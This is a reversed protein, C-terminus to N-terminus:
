TDDNTPMQYLTDGSSREVLQGEHLIFVRDTPSILVEKQTFSVYIIDTRNLADHIQANIGKDLYSTAEDLILINPRKYLARALLLRQKQSGSLNTGIDGVMTQLGKPMATIEEYLGVSRLSETVRQQNLNHDFFAVNELIPAAFLQDEQTVTGIHARYQVLNIQRLNVGEVTIDGIDPILLGLMLKILTTKVKESLGLIVVSDGSKIDLNIGSVIWPQDDTHRYWVDEFAINFSTEIDSHNEGADINHHNVEIVIDEQPPKLLQQKGSSRLLLEGEHLTFVKDTQSLLEERHTISIHTRGANRLAAHVHAQNSKDLHSTAEDLILIEPNKYLARAVLLRQKQGGSLTTGMDGVLTQMGMPMTTVEELLGASRLCDVVREQELEPDFFAVNELISGAFLQDEQMVTGIHSRYQALNIQRLSIGDVLIDGKDPTLLGLMLKILTTKGGGSLGIIVISDGPQIELNIGSLVWPEGDSYRFWVNEFVLSLGTESPILSVGEETSDREHLVIDSLRETQISLLKFSVMKDVFASTKSIFQEKYGLYAFLMGITFERNIIMSAALWIVLANELAVLFGNGLRFGIDLKQLAIRANYVDVQQNLWTSVRTTEFNFLKLSQVGRISELTISSLKADRIIEEESRLRYVHYFYTRLLVYLLASLVVILTLEVSYFLMVCLAIVAMISDVISEIFSDTIVRRIQDVAGFRSLVDGLNRKEFFSIPLRLLHSFVNTSWQLNMRTGMVMLLWSRLSSTVLQFITLLFMGSVLVLLLSHDGTVVVDDIIWQNLWPLIIAVIELILSVALIQGLSRKLGVVHGLLNRLRVRTKEKKPTFDTGPTLELAVGTFSRGLEELTLRRKGISPDHIIAKGREMKTLVVFHRLEWHLICPMNLQTLEDIELRLARAALGIDSAIDILTKLNLGKLSLSFRNRLARLDTEYGYQAACMALCALGCEAAETQLLVPVKNRRGLHLREFIEM